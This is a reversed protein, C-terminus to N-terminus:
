RNARLKYKYLIDDYYEGLYYPMKSDLIFDEYADTASISFYYGDVVTIVDGYYGLSDLQETTLGKSVISMYDIKLKSYNQNVSNQNKIIKEDIQNNYKLVSDAYERQKDKREQLYESILADYKNDLMDDISEKLTNKASIKGEIINQKEQIEAIVGDKEANRKDELKALANYYASSYSMNREASKIELKKVSDDYAEDISSLRKQLDEGCALKEVELASIEALIESETQIKECAKKKLFIENASALIEEDTKETFEIKKLDLPIIVPEEYFDKRYRYYEDIEKLVNVLEEKTTPIDYTM